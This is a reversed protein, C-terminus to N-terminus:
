HFRDDPPMVYFLRLQPSRPGTRAVALRFLAAHEPEALLLLGLNSDPHATWYQVLNRLDFVVASDSNVRFRFTAEPADAFRANPGFMAFSQMMRRVGLAVTDKRAYEVQPQFILEARAITAAAPVSDLSFRLFARFAMGTGVRHGLPRGLSITDVIHTDDISHYVANKNNPYNIRLRPATATNNGSYIGVFGTDAPLIIVGNERLAPLTLTDLKQLALEIVTSERETKGRGLEVDWYDGGPRLWHTVSDAMRWSAGAANWITSCPRVIFSIVNSDARHLILQASLASDFATDPLAFRILLRSQYQADQGLYMTGAAGLPVYRAYSAQTDPLLTLSDSRPIRDLQDAGVPLTNCATFWWLLLLLVPRTANM